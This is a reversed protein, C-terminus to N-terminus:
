FSYFVNPCWDADTWLKIRCGYAYLDVLNIMAISISLTISAPNVPRFVRAPSKGATVNLYLVGAAPPAALARRTAFKICITGVRIMDQFSVVRSDPRM